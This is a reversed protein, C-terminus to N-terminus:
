PRREARLAEWIREDEPGLVWASFGRLKKDRALALQARFSRVDSLFVWEFTGGNEFYAYPAAQASDWQVVAGNREALGSGWAWSVTESSSRAREPITPDYRSYWHESWLPIGLSLKEAPIFRLFYAVNDRMWPLGAIPGPPTRRTQQDYSMLSVFDGARGLAALDYGERWSEYLFRHYATPGPADETRHVVAISIKCGAAHLSGAAQQYWATLRERDELNVNEIDFQIGWFGDDRCLGTLTRVARARAATDALLRRLAPQNFGENVVLPMVKVGHRKALDLVRRDVSGWVIGLSDVTFVQPGLVSILDIHRVLSGYSNETDVYYFLREVPQQALAARTPFAIALGCLLARQLLSRGM